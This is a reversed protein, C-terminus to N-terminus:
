ELNEFEGRFFRVLFILFIKPRVCIFDRGNNIAYKDDNDAHSQNTQRDHPPPIATPKRGDAIPWLLGGRAVGPFVGGRSLM